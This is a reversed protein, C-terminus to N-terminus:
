IFNSTARLATDYQIIKLLRHVVFILSMLEKENSITWILLHAILFFKARYPGVIIKKQAILSRNFFFANYVVWLM